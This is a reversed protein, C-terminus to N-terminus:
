CWVGGRLDGEVAEAVVFGGEDRVRGLFEVVLERREGDEERGGRARAGAIRLPFLFLLPSLKGDDSDDSGGGRQEALAARTLRLITEVHADVEDHPLMATPAAGGCLLTWEARRYDFIGSLYIRTAAHFVLALLTSRDNSSIATPGDDTSDPAYADHWCQLADCLGQGDAYIARAEDADDNRGEDWSDM